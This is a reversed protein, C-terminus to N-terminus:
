LNRAYELVLTGLTIQSVSDINVRIVDGTTFGTTWGTLVSSEAKTGATLTPKAGATITDAATAPHNAYTDRWLDFVVSGSTNLLSYKTGLIRWKLWTGSVPMTVDRWIGTGPVNVSDGFPIAVSQRATTDPTYWLTLTALSVTASSDVKVRLVDGESFARSWGTLTSSEAAAAATLTPKASATISDAVTPPHNAYSDQWLDIVASGTSGTTFKTGQIRWKTWTGSFPLSVDVYAGVPLASVGDGIPISLALTAPLVVGAAGAPGQVGEGRFQALVNRLRPDATGNGGSGVIRLVVVAKAGTPINQWGTYSWAAAGMSVTGGAMSTWGSAGTLDTTYELDLVAGATGANQTEAALLYQTENTLDVLKRYSPDNNLEQSGAPQNPWDFNGGTFILEQRSIFEVYPGVTYGTTGGGAVPGNQWTTSGADYLLAEGDAPSTIAVDQLKTLAYVSRSIEVWWSGAADWTLTHKNNTALLEYSKPILLNQAGGTTPMMTVDRANNASRVILLTGDEISGTPTITTLDDSAAGGETDVILYIIATNSRIRPLTVAGAAITITGANFTADNLAAWVIVGDGRDQGFYTIGAVEIHHGEDAATPTPLSTLSESTTWPVEWVPTGSPWSSPPPYGDEQHLGRQCGTMMAWGNAESVFASCRVVESGVIKDADVRFGNLTAVRIETATALLRGRLETLLGEIPRVETM